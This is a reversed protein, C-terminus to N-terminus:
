PPVLVKWEEFSVDDGLIGEKVYQEYKSYSNDVLSIEAAFVSSPLLLGIMMCIM